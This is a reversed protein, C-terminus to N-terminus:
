SARSAIMTRAGRLNRRVRLLTDPLAIAGLVAKAMRQIAPGQGVLTGFVRQLLAERVQRSTSYRLMLYLETQSPVHRHRLQTRSSARTVVRAGHVRLGGRGARWHAVRIAPNLIMLAGALYGRMAVDADARAGRDFAPDFLGGREFFTRRTLTGVPFIDVVRMLQFDEPLPGAGAEEVAPAVMDAGLGTCTRLLSEIFDGPIEDTDDDMFLLFEGTSVRIGQNRATCQGLVEQQYVTLPLDSFETAIAGDRAQVPTQDIVIVEKPPVTQGRLQGLAARLYSYRDLTPIIVSVRGQYDGPVFGEDGLSPRDYPVPRPRAGERRIRSRARLLDGLSYGLGPGRLICWAVWKAGHHQSVIRLEDHVTLLPAVADAIVGSALQPVHRVIAGRRMWRRGLDLSAGHLTDFLVDVGGLKRFVDVRALCADMSLRWSSSVVSPECDRNLMSVPDVCDLLGPLGSMGLRLGAHWVDGPLRLTADVAAADPRGLRAHWLLCYGAEASAVWADLAPGLAAPTEPLRTIQGLPWAEPLPAEDGLWLLDVRQTSM